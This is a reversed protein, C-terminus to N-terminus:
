KLENYNIKLRDADVVFMSFTTMGGCDSGHIWLIDVINQTWFQSFLSLSQIEIHVWWNLYNQMMTNTTRMQAFERKFNIIGSNKQLIRYAKITLEEPGDKTQTNVSLLMQVRLQKMQLLLHLLRKLLKNVLELEVQKLDRSQQEMGPCSSEM